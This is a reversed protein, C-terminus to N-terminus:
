GAGDRKLVSMVTRCIIRVDLRLSRNRVYYLEMRQREGSSYTANNRAYAQWYGTLGPKISLFDRQEQLDYNRELEERLLPRPGVVSMNGRLCINYPIQPLEDLSTSRLWQGFCEGSQKYGILRPDDRLKYERKYQAYQEPSLMQELHDAGIRMSRFKLVSIERGGKGIRKQIYFPNGPDNVMVLIAILFMPILLLISACLSSLFDFCRKIILYTISEAEASSSASASPIDQRQAANALAPGM